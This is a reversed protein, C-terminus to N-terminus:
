AFHSVAAVILAAVVAIIIGSVYTNEHWRKPPGAWPKLTNLDKPVVPGRFIPGATTVSEQRDDDHGLEARKRSFAQPDSRKLRDWEGLTLHQSDSDVAREYGQPQVDALLCRKLRDDVAPNDLVAHIEDTNM